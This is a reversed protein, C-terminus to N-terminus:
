DLSLLRWDGDIGKLRHTGRDAFTYGSGLVLDRVTTSVLVESPRALSGVRAGIHVAIGRVEEGRREVEGTHLGARVELGLSRADDRIAAACRVARSPSDFTALFGDGTWQSERGGNARLSRRVLQDHRDLLEVWASDGLRTARETSSVIDTFLVTALVRDAERLASRQGTVFEELEDLVPEVDGIWPPHDVGPLEVLRAGRIEAALHRALAVPVVLEETRHIILTPVRIAGLVSRVDIEAVFRM